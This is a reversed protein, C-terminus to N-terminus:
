GHSIHMPTSHGRIFVWFHERILVARYTVSLVWIHMYVFSTGNVLAAHKNVRFFTRGPTVCADKQIWIEVFRYKNSMLHLYNADLAGIDRLETSDIYSFIWVCKLSAEYDRLASTVITFKSREVIIQGLKRLDSSLLDNIVFAIAVDRSKCIFLLGM